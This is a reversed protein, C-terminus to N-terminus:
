TGIQLIDSPKFGIRIAQVEITKDSDPVFAGTYLFWQDPNGEDKYRWGISSGPTECNLTLQDNDFSFKVEDTVPQTNGGWMQLILESEPIFGKDGVRNQLNALAKRLELLKEEYEPNGALNNFEYPDAYTDYLEEVPKTKRWWLSDLGTFLGEEEYRYLERMMPIQKRYEIAQIFPKDPYYNKIYKFQKDRAARVMDYQGDMRDRAGFIYEREESKQNGLFAHGQMYEPIEIGALSLVTPAFDVFSVLQDNVVGDESSGPFRIILPVKLGSDYLERKERPLMGGHDSYFFIITSDLLGDEELQQLIIGVQRDMETINSYKRAYDRRVVPNEPHYPPIPVKDEEVLLPETGQTWIRSEHTTLFNFIAFFPKGDPRKRWHADVDCEDWATIPAEFQYDTKRNNTCYYGETRLWESFCRVEEPLVTGYDPLGPVSNNTTRMNHGGTSIPYMGTILSHRSPACVGAVSYANTYRIGESALNDLNPTSVVSDGYCGLTPTIDECTIWLINPRFGLDWPNEKIEVAKEPSSCASLAVGSFLFANLYYKM